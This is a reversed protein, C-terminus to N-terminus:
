NRRTGQAGDAVQAIYEAGVPGSSGINYVWRNRLQQVREKFAGSDSRLAEDIHAGIHALADPSVVTGIQSRLTVELPECPLQEYEPNTVKRPLDVFIVPRELSFVYELGVGGWDCIMIDSAHLSTQSAIDLDFNVKPNSGFRRRLSRILAPNNRTTMSHPRVTVDYCGDLLIEVLQIGCTELLANKGWSPAILVRTCRGEGPGEAVEPASASSILTDLRGYGHEILVKPDLGYLAERARIEAIHHPGVCLVSDFHDFAAPRYSMHTSVLAHHVYVYHVPYRSRKIHFTQLDPMTMVMVDAKLTQFFSTRAAGFGICFTILRDDQVQLVPDEPSSTVYCIQRNLDGTLERVIGELYTWYGGDQAYVVISRSAPPM